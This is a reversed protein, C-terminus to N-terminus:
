WGSRARGDGVEDDVVAGDGAEDDLWYPAVRRRAVVRPTTRALPPKVRWGCRRWSISGAGAGSHLGAAGPWVPSSCSM